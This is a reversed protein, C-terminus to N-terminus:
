KIMNQKAVGRNIQNGLLTLPIGNIYSRQSRLPRLMIHLHKKIISVLLSLVVLSLSRWGCVNIDLVMIINYIITSELLLYKCFLRAGEKLLRYHKCWELSYFCFELAIELRISVLRFMCIKIMRDDYYYNRVRPTSGERHNNAGPSPCPSPSTRSNIMSRSGNSMNMSGRLELNERELAAQRLRSDSITSMLELKQTELSSRTLM